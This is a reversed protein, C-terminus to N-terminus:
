ACCCRSGSGGITLEADLNAAGRASRKIVGLIRSPHERSVSKAVKLADYHDGEDTVVLLTMVMGMSPSGAKRRETLLASAIASANTSTLEITM